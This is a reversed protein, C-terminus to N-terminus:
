SSTASALLQTIRDVADAVDARMRSGVGVGGIEIGFLRFRVSRLEPRAHLLWRLSEGLDPHHASGAGQHNPELLEEHQLVRVSGAPGAGSIGDVLLVQEEGRWLDALGLLDGDVVLTRVSRGHGSEELRRVAAHGVGDDGAARNGLGVVLIREGTAPVDPRRALARSSTERDMCTVHVSCSICPDYARALMEFAPKLGPEAGRALLHEGVVRLDREVNALNQATPTIINAATVLGEGDIEYEHVLTGRPAELAGIGRGGRVEVEELEADVAPASLYADCLEIASEVSYVIEV